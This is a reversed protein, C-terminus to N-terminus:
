SVVFYTGLIVCLAGLAVKLNVLELRQLFLVSFAVTFLPYTYAISMVVSAPLLLTAQFFAVLAFCTAVGSATLNLMSSRDISRLDSHQRTSILISVYMPTAALAAVFNSLMPAGTQLVGARTLAGMIGYSLGGVLALSVGKLFNRANAQSVSSGQSISILSIGSFNLLVGFAMGLPIKESLFLASLLVGFPIGTASLTYARSAGILSISTFVPIRGLIYQFLGVLILYVLSTYSLTGIGSIGGELLVFVLLLPLSTILTVFIGPIPRTTLLGRRVLLGNLGWFLSSLFPYVIPEM